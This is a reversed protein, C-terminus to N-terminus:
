AAVPPARALADPLPTTVMAGAGCRPCTDVDRGTLARLRDQWSPEAVAASDIAPKSPALVRRARELKTNVNASAYLGYHRIKVFQKPLIHMSFRRLFEVGTVTVKKGDKTRFTVAEDTMAVLRSNAIGVRHTYRGLYSFVQEAGGFPRKAYVNWSVSAVRMCLREFAQPDDFDSFGAFVGKAYLKRLGALFKGRFLAGMVKVPFLFDKGSAIWRDADLSLGGGTIIAHVHPHFRLDRTWTHLVMTIGLVAGIRKEDKGLELLTQSSAAFLLDFIEERRYAALPYLESPITFVGHFHRAPLVREAREEIWKEAALSQCKPCHRNRCSHYVLHEYGCATCAHRHGGLAPTRCREIAGFAARVEPTVIHSRRFTEGFARVIDALELRPRAPPTEAACDTV